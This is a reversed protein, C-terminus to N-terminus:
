SPGASGPGAGAAPGYPSRSTSAPPGGRKPSPPASPRHVLCSGGHLSTNVHGRNGGGGAPAAAHAFPEPHRRSPRPAPVANGAVLQRALDKPSSASRGGPYKGNM